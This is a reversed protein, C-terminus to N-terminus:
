EGGQAPRLPFTIALGAVRDELSTRYPVHCKLCENQIRIAGVYRFRGGQVKDFEAAGEKLAAAAAEEFGDKPEHDKGKTANVGLWRIQVSWRREMEEFVEDLSQSPLIVTDDQGFYNRHMVQLAGHITEHLWRARSLAEERSRPLDDRGQGKEAGPNAAAKREPGANEESPSLGPLAALLLAALFPKMKM